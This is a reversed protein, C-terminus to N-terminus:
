YNETSNELQVTSEAWVSGLALIAGGLNVCLFATQDGYVQHQWCLRGFPSFGFQLILM